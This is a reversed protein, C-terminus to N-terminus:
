PRSGTRRQASSALRRFLKDLMAAGRDPAHTGKAAQLMLYREAAARSLDRDEITAVWPYNTFM